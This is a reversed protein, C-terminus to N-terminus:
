LVADVLAAPAHGARIVHVHLAGDGADLEGEALVRALDVEAATPEAAASRGAVGGRAHADLRQDPIPERRRLLVRSLPGGPILDLLQALFRRGLQLDLLHQSRVYDADLDPG